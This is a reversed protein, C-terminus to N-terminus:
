DNEDGNLDDEIAYNNNKMNEKISACGSAFAMLVLAAAIIALIKKM